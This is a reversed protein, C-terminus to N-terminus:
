SLRGRTDEWGLTAIRIITNADSANNRSRIQASTNTMIELILNQFGSAPINLNGLPAVTGSPAEDNADLDSLLCNTGTGAGCELRLNMFAKVKIGTPVSLTRTAASTGPNSVDVDLVSAKRRFYDGTQVFTVIAGGVRMISGIRRKYDYSAPMTPTSASLSFLADVVGTDSRKILWVHYTNNGISGTDLGGQNTGVTWVVDLRKTIASALVLDAANDSSRCRGIAIDIDNTPDSTNNSLTLGFLYGIPMGVALNTEIYDLLDDPSINRSRLTGTVLKLMRIRDSPTLVSEDPLNFEFEDTM